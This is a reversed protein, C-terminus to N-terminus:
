RLITLPHAFVSLHLDDLPHSPTSWMSPYVHTILLFISALITSDISLCSTHRASVVSIPRSAARLAKQTTPRRNIALQQIVLHILWSSVPQSAPQSAPHISSHIFPYTTPCQFSKQNDGPLYLAM